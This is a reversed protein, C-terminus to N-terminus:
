APCPAAAGELHRDVGEQATRSYVALATLSYVLRNITPDRMMRIAGAISRDWDPNIRGGGPCALADGMQLRRMPFVKALVADVVAPDRGIRQLARRASEERARWQLGVLVM